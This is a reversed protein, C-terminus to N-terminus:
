PNDQKSEKLYRQYERHSRDARETKGEFVLNIYDQYPIETLDLDHRKLTIIGM